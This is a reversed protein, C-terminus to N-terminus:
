EYNRTILYRLLGQLLESYFREKLKRRIQLFLEFCYQPHQPFKQRNTKLILYICVIVALAILFNFCILGYTQKVLIM